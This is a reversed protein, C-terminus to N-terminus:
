DKAMSAALSYENIQHRLRVVSPFEADVFLPKALLIHPIFRWVM